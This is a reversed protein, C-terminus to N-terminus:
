RAAGKRLADEVALLLAKSTTTAGTVTDVDNRQGRLIKEAIGEAMQPYVDRRNQVIDVGTIQGGAVTVDVAYTFVGDRAEGHYRGAALSDIPVPAVPLRRYSQIMGNWLVLYLAMSLGALGGLALVLRRPLQVQRRLPGWPKYVSIVVVVALSVIQLWTYRLAEAQLQGYAPEVLARARLADSLAAMGNVAPAVALTILAAFVLLSAWKVVIWKFRFFGWRTFLSFALSTFVIGYAANTVVYENILFVTRDVAALEDGSRVGQKTYLLLLMVGLGGLWAAVLLHHLSLIANKGRAGLLTTGSGRHRAPVAHVEPARGRPVGPAAVLRVLVMGTIAAVLAGMALGSASGIAATLPVPTREDILAMGAFAALMGMTWALAHAPVWWRAHSVARRLVLWQPVALIMGALAGVGAGSLVMLALAPAGSAPDGVADGAADGLRTGIAMGAGWAIVAGAVTALLWARRRIAPLSPRLAVWQAFGLCSGEVVGAAVVALATAGLQAAGSLRGLVTVVGAGVVVAGGFGTIEGVMNAVIWRRWLAWASAPQPLLM